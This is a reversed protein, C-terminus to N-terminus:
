VVKIITCQLYETIYKEADQPNFSKFNAMLNGSTENLLRYTPRKEDMDEVVRYFIIIGTKHKVTIHSGKAILM